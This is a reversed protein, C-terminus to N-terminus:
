NRQYEHYKNNIFMERIKKRARSLNVRVANENMDLIGAIEDFDYGEIDRLQIVTRQLEPLTKIIHHVKQVLDSLDPKQDFGTEEVENRLNDISESPYKKAKIKDLCLNRTTVMALAEISKYEMLGDGKKWLKIFVEQVIDKAEEPDDLIRKSFRYLKNKLPFVLIKFEQHTM